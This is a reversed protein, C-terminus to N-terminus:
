CARGCARCAQVLKGFGGRGPVLHAASLMFVLDDDASTGNRMITRVGRARLIAMVADRYAASRDTGINAAARYHVDGVVVADMTPIRVSRYHALPHVYYCGRAATCGRKQVYYPWDLVDGLRLHVVTVPRPAGSTRRQAIRCM